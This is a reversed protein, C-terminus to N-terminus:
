LLNQFSYKADSWFADLAILRPKFFSILKPWDEENLINVQKLEKSIRSTIKGNEDKYNLQWTWEEELAKHFLKKFEELQYFYLERIDEDPHNLEIFIGAFSVDAEMRFSIHKVETKYNIWNIQLGEASPIPKMYQGFTTWFAQRLHSSRPLQPMLYYIATIIFL